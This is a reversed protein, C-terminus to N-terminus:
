LKKLHNFLSAFLHNSLKQHQDSHYNTPNDQKHTLIHKLHVNAENLAQIINMIILNFEQKQKNNLKILLGDIHFITKELSQVDQVSLQNKSSLHKILVDISKIMEDLDNFLEPNSSM